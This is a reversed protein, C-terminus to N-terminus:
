RPVCSGTPYMRTNQVNMIQPLSMDGGWVDVNDYVGINKNREGVRVQSPADRPANVRLNDHVSTNVADASIQVQAHTNEAKKVEGVPLRSDPRPLASPTAKKNEAIIEQSAATSIPLASIQIQAAEKPKPTFVDTAIAAIIVVIVIITRWFRKRKMGITFICGIVFICLALLALDVRSALLNVIGRLQIFNQLLWGAWAIAPTATGVKIWAATRPSVRWRGITVLESPVPPLVEM